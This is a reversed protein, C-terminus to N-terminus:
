SDGLAAFAGPAGLGASVVGAGAPLDIATIGSTLMLRSVLSAYKAAPIVDSRDFAMLRIGPTRTAPDCLVARSADALGISSPLDSPTFMTSVPVTCRSLVRRRTVARRTFVASPNVTQDSMNSRSERSTNLTCSSIEPAITAAIEGSSDPAPCAAAGAGACGLCAASRGCGRRM